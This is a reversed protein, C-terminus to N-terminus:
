QVRKLRAIYFGDSNLYQIRRPRSGPNVKHDEMVSVPSAAASPFINLEEQLEWNKGAASNLFIDIQNQNEAPLVSCTSYVLIGGRATMASYTQLIQQQVQKLQDIENQTLKWKTDPSRRLVGLGSCPVDLLVRDASEHLRKIIKSSTIIKTEIIDAGARTARQRLPKLRWDNKDLAIIRGKNKMLSAIHLSKGGGGACADIVRMGPQVQLFPVIQQSGLDQVEFFGKKFTDTIFVNKREALKVADVGEEAPSASIGEATLKKLVTDRDTLIRNTRLYVLAPLNLASLVPPWDNGLEHEGLNDLWDPISERIARKENPIVNWASVPNQSFQIVSKDTAIVPSKLLHQNEPKMLWWAYWMKQVCSYTMRSKDLYDQEGGEDSGSIGAYYLRRRWRVCEYISEAFFRRDRAGWKTRSKLTTEVIKEARGDHFVELLAQIIGEVLHPHLKPM